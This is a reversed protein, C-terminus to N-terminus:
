ETERGPDVAAPARFARRLHIMLSGVATASLFGYPALNATAAVVLVVLADLSRVRVGSGRWVLAGAEVALIVGLVPLPFLVTVNGLGFAAVAALALYFLGYYM